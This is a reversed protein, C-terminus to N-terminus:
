QGREIKDLFDNFGRILMVIANLAKRTRFELETPSVNQTTGGYSGLIAQAERVEQHASRLEQRLTQINNRSIPM